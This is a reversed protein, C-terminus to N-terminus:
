KDNKLRSAFASSRALVYNAFHREREADVQLVRAAAGGGRYCQLYNFGTICAAHGDTLPKSKSGHITAVPLLASLTRFILWPALGRSVRGSCHGAFM